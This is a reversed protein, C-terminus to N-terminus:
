AILALILPLCSCGLATASAKKLPVGRWVRLAKTIINGGHATRARRNLQGFERAGRAIYGESGDSIERLSRLM